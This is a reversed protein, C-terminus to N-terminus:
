VVLIRQYRNIDESEQFPVGNVEVWSHSSFPALKVGVCWDIAKGNMFALLVFALSEELCAVRM